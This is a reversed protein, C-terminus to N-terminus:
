IKYVYITKDDNITQLVKIDKIKVTPIKLPNSDLVVFDAQKGKEISGKIDEEFHQYASWITMAKLADLPSLKHKEGLVQGSRTIRNVASDLIRMSNPFTVPADSHITFRMSQELFWGTPSINNAREPGAVSDRHWDGWYFTHMPYLAPFIGLAKLKKIQDQRTFQGHIMVTRHDGLPNENNAKEVLKIAQDIAADGNAHVLLQWRNKYALQMLQYAEKDDFAPYGSYDDTQGTPVVLYPKTFWATKGQPSGDFTLKVGGIRFRNHYNRSMLNSYIIPNDKLVKLDPYSIIDIDFGIQDAIKPLANLTALDTKGEQVTTFGNSKYKYEGAKYLKVLDESTFDPIMKFFIMFHANEQMVGSPTKGDSEREIIGGPPNQTEANIGMIELAKTNYAGLHGSQHMVVIPLETTVADLDHRNPHRKEKLQSDDYNFGIVVKYDKAISSNKLFKRLQNQLEAITNVPGDPAPLLNAVISQTGVGAFHSHADIFGPVLTKGSLDIIKTNPGKFQLIDQKSGVSHILGDKSAVAEGSPNQDDMTIVNGNIYITDVKEHEQKSCSSLAVISVLLIIKINMFNEKLNNKIGLVM